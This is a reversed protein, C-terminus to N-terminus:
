DDAGGNAPAAADDAAIEDRLDDPNRGRASIAESRSMLRLELATRTAELDKQPDVQYHAPMIWEARTDPSADLRGAAIEAALWRRWVPRLFQPVLTAHQVQEVRQRFPLLGARLSSYNAESLDGSLLHEPLGMGAAFTRLQHKLFEGVQAAQEPSNFKVDTGGPLVRMAGPELSMNESFDEADPSENVRTIFGAHMAAVKAGTLLADTLQDLENATVVVPALWSLGRVQGAGMPHFVHLVDRADVRVSAGANFSTQPAEPLIWYALRRGDADLEVGNRIVRSDSLEATKSWDLLEPPIVQLRLGDGTDHLIALAEGDVVLHQAIQRQLGALDTVATIDAQETWSEFADAVRRRYDARADQVAPRIGRGVLAGTWNGVGHAAHANNRHLHRARRMVMPGGAAIDETLPGAGGWGTGRRGGAAAELHRRRAAKDTDREAARRTQRSPLLRDLAEGIM